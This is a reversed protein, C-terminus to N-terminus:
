RLWGGNRPSEQPIPAKWRSPYARLLVLLVLYAAAGLVLRAVLLALPTLEDLALKSGM